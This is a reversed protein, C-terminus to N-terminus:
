VAAQPSHYSEHIHFYTESPPLPNAPVQPTQRFHEREPGPKRGAGRVLTTPLTPGFCGGPNLVQAPLVWGEGPRPLWPLAPTPVSPRSPQNRGLPLAPAWPLAQRLGTLTVIGPCLCGTELVRLPVPARRAAQLFLCTKNLVRRGRWCGLGADHQKGLAFSTTKWNRPM